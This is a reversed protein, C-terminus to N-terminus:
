PFRFERFGPWGRWLRHCDLLIQSRALDKVRMSAPAADEGDSRDQFANDNDLPNDSAVADDRMVCRKRSRGSSTQEPKAEAEM